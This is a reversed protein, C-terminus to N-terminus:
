SAATVVPREAFRPMVERAFLEMSAATQKLDFGGLAFSCILTELGGVIGDLEELQQICDDPSGSIGMTDFAEDWTLESRWRMREIVPREREPVLDWRDAPPLAVRRQADLFWSLREAGGAVAKAEERTRGVYVPRSIIVSAPDYAYGASSLSERYLSLNQTIGAITGTSGGCIVSQGRRAANRFGDQSLTAVAIPPHPKQIPKPLVQAGNIQWFKGQYDLEEETWARLIIDLAEDFRDRSEEFPVNHRHFESWQYGRGVGLILRGDSLNDVTAAIEAVTLPNYFPLVVVATGIKLKSTVGALHSAITLVSSGLGYRSFHHDALWVSDFGLEESLKVLEVTEKFVQAQSKGEHWQLLHFTGFKM